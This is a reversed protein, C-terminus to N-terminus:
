RCAGPGAVQLSLSWLKKMREGAAAPHHAVRAPHSGGCVLTHSITGLAASIRTRGPLAASLRAISGLREAGRPCRATWPQAPLGSRRRVPASAPLPDSACWPM